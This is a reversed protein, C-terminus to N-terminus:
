PATGLGSRRERLGRFLPVHSVGASWGRLLSDYRTAARARDGRLEALRGLFYTRHREELPDSRYDAALAGRSMNEVGVRLLATDGMALASRIVPHGLQTPPSGYEALSSRAVEVVRAHDGRHFPGIVRMAGDAVRAFGEPAGSARIAQLASERIQEAIDFRGTSALYHLTGATTTGDPGRTRRLSDALRSAVEYRELLVMTRLVQTLAQAYLGPRGSGAAVAVLSDYGALAGEVDGEWMRTDATTWWAWVRTDPFESGRYEALAARAEEYRGEAVYSRGLHALALAFDGRLELARRYDARAEEYRGAFERIEGRSDYANPADPQLDVYKQVLTDAGALDGRAAYRYALFNWGDAYYPDLTMLQVLQEEADEEDVVGLSAFGAYLLRADKEDPYKRILERFKREGSEAEGSVFDIFAGITLRDRESATELHRSAARIHQNAAIVNGSRYDLGALQFHAAAYTSDLAIAREFHERAEVNLFQWVADRGADYARFAELSNTTLRAVPANEVPSVARGVLDSSLAASVEDVLAFVDRGRARASARVEGTRADSLTAVIQLDDPSGIISGTLMYRAGARRTVETQLDAPVIRAEGAGLQRLIDLVRQGSVVRLTDFQALDTALLEAIGRDLWEYDSLLIQNQFPLVAVSNDGLPSGGRASTAAPDAPRAALWVSGTVGIILLAGLLVAEPRRVRQHGREGHYWVLVLAAFFGVVLLFLTVDLLRRSIYGQEVFFGAVQAAVWAGVAYGAIYRVARRERLEAFFGQPTDTM